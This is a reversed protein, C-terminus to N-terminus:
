RTLQWNFPVDFWMGQAVGDRKGPVYRWKLANEVSAQDLRDFGSSQKVSAQSAQGDAAIFVRVVVRGTEMLRRSQAPYAPKPNNLYDADSSPLEVKPAPPSAAAAASGAPGDSNASSAAAPGSPVSNSAANTVAASDATAALALPAPQPAVAATAVPSPASLAPPTPPPSQTKVPVPNNPERPLPPAPPPPPPVAPAMIEVLVVEPLLAQAARRLLGTQLAWLLVLHLALVSIVIVANRRM